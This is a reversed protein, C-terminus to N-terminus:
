ATICEGIHSETNATNHVTCAHTHAWECVVVLQEIQPLFSVKTATASTAELTTRADKLVYAMSANMLIQM